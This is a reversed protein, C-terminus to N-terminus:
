KETAFYKYINKFLTLCLPKLSRAWPGVAAQSAAVDPRRCSALLLKIKDM